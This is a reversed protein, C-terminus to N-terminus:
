KIALTRRGLTPHCFPNAVIAEAPENYTTNLIVCFSRILTVDDKLVIFIIVVQDPGVEVRVQFQTNGM